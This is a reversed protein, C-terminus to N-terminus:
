RRATLRMHIPKAGSIAVLWAFRLADVRRLGVKRYESYRQLLESMETVEKATCGQNGDLERFM